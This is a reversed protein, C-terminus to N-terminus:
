QDNGWITVLAAHSLECDFEFGSTTIATCEYVNGGLREANTDCGNMTFYPDPVGDDNTEAFDVTEIDNDMMWLLVHCTLNAALNNM